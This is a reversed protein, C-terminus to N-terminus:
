ECALPEDVDKLGLHWGGLGIASVEEGTCGLTRYIMESNNPIRNM